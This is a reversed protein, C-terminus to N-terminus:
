GLPRNKEKIMGVDVRREAKKDKKKFVWLPSKRPPGNALVRHEQHLPGLNSGPWSVLDEDQLQSRTCDFLYIFVTSDFCEGKWMAKGEVWSQHLDSRSIVISIPFEKIASLAHGQQCQKHSESKYTFKWIFRLFSFLENTVDSGGFKRRKKRLREM